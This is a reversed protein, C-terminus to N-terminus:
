LRMRPDRAAVEVDIQDQVLYTRATHTQRSRRGSSTHCPRTPRAGCHPCEVTEYIETAWDNM